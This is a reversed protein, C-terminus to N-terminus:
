PKRVEPRIVSYDIVNITKSKDNKINQIFVEVDNSLNRQISEYDYKWWEVRLLQSIISEEFRYKIIKAPVGGVIAYPPVDKLVVSGAAVVCGHGLKVGSNILVRDGIWCDHGIIVRRRKSTHFISINNDSSIYLSPHTSVGEYNHKGLGISVGRGISCYRGVESYSRIIGQNMYSYYGIWIDGQLECEIVRVNNEALVSWGKNNTSVILPPSNRSM